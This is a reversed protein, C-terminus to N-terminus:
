GKSSKRRSSRPIRWIASTSARSSTASSTSRPDAAFPRSPRRVPRPPRRVKAGFCYGVAGIKKVGHKEKLTKITAEVIPDVAEKTHPNKGDSGVSLWKAFDFGEPRNLSLPDGNFVDLVLTHYGNAAFQDAMLQSNKWIGIVDPLFLIGVDKHNKDPPPAAIYADWKGDIKTTTGTPEGRQRDAPAVPTIM